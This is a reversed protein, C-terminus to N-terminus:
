GRRRIFCSIVLCLLVTQTYTMLKGGGKLGLVNQCQNVTIARTNCREEFEFLTRFFLNSTLCPCDTYLDYTKMRGRSSKRFASVQFNRSITVTTVRIDCQGAGRSLVPFCTISSSNIYTTFKRGGKPSLAFIPGPANHCQSVKIVGTYCRGVYEFLIRFCLNSTLCLCDNCLDYMKMRGKSTNYFHVGSFEQFHYSNDCPYWM